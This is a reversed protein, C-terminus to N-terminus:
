DNTRENALNAQPNLKAEMQFLANMREDDLEFLEQGLDRLVLQADFGQFGAARVAEIEVVHRDPAQAIREFCGEVGTDLLAAFGRLRFLGVGSQSGQLGLLFRKAESPFLANMVDGDVVDFSCSM